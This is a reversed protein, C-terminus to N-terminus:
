KPKFYQLEYINNILAEADIWIGEEKGKKNRECEWKYRCSNGWTNRVLFQCKGGRARKGVVLSAHNGCKSDISTRRGIFGVYQPKKLVKACYSIGMGTSKKRNLQKTMLKYLKMPDKLDRKGKITLRPLKKSNLIISEKKM